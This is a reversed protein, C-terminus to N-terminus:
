YRISIDALDTYNLKALVMLHEERTRTNSLADLSDIFWIAAKDIVRVNEPSNLEHELCRNAASANSLGLIRALLRNPIETYNKYTESGSTYGLVYPINFELMETHGAPYYCAKITLCAFVCPVEKSFDSNLYVSGPVIGSKIHFEFAKM